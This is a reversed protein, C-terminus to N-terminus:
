LSQQAEVYVNELLIASQAWNHRTRVFELGNRGIRNREQDNNLMRVVEHAFEDPHNAVLVDEGPKVDLASVALSTSVVPTGVAMAELVKNQIGAGYLIPTVAVQAKRLYPRIDEVTGTVIVQPNKGYALIERSPDKGVVYVRADPKSAWVKPMIDNILYDVMRANAHYSLKGSVVVTDAERETTPDPSFYELDVGNPIVCIRDGPTHLNSLSLLSQRDIVSTVLVRDFQNVLYGEYHETRRLELRALVKQPLSKGRGIAQRFLHSISDVSDWVVPIYQGKRGGNERVLRKVSLAYNAGRLHEVHVADFQPVGQRSFLIKKLQKEVEPNWCYVAQLPIKGPVAMLCNRYSRTKTQEFAFINKLYPAIGEIAQKENETTWITMLTIEHGRAALQRILNYPRVRILDPVYPVIFLLKM